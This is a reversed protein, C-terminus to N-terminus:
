GVRDDQEGWTKCIEELEVVLDEHAKEYEVTLLDIWDKLFDVRAMASADDLSLSLTVEGECDDYRGYLKGVLEGKGWSPREYNTNAFRFGTGAKM